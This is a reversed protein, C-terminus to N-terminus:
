TFRYSEDELAAKAEDLLESKVLFYDTDFTSIVFVPINSNKLVATIGAIIGVLGFDLPGNIMIVRWGDSKRVDVPIEDNMITVVSLEEPTRTVSLFHSTLAWQPLKQEPNFRLVSYEEPLIKLTPKM